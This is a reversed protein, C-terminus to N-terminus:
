KLAVAKRIADAISRGSLRVASDLYARGKSEDMPSSGETGYQWVERIGRAWAEPDSLELYYKHELGLQERHVKIGSVLITKGLTKADEVVTSWGEFASPQLMGISRRMLAVQEERPLMGLIRINAELSNQKIYEQLKEFYGQGRFGFTSGTCAVTIELGETKLLQVARFVVEHNKHHSFQNSLVFFKGGLGFKTAVELPDRSFWCDDPVSCFRVVSTKAIAAPFVQEMDKLTHESSVVVQDAAAVNEAFYDEYWRCLADGFLEPMHRYQFDSLWFVFPVGPAECPRIPFVADIGADIFLDRADAHGRLGRRIKRKFRGALTTPFQVVTSEGLYQRVEAFPDETPKKQWWVDTFSIQESVPLSKVAKVLHQLYYRGGLWKGDTDLAVLGAKLM